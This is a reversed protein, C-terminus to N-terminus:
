RGDWGGTLEVLVLFGIVWVLTTVWDGADM